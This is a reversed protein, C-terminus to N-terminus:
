LIRSTCGNARAWALVEGSWQVHKTDGAIGTWASLVAPWRAGREHRLWKAAALHGHAGATRLMDTLIVNLNDNQLVTHQLVYVMTYISGSRASVMAVYNSSWPCGHERLYQLVSLHGNSAAVDCVQANWGCGISRLYQCMLLQGGQAAAHMMDAGLRGGRQLLLWDLIHVHGYTAAKRMMATVKYACGHEGLWQLVELHGGEVASDCAKTHWKHGLAHLLRLVPLRGQFAAECCTRAHM